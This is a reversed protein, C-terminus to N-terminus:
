WLFLAGVGSCDWLENKNLCFSFFGTNIFRPKYYLGKQTVFTINYNPIFCSHNNYSKCPFPLEFPQFIKGAQNKIFM